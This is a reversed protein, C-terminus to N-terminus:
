DKPIGAAFWNGTDANRILLVPTDCPDPPVPSLVDDIRFDGNPEPMVAGSDHAVNGCFLTALIPDASTTGINGGARILGKGHVKIAGNTEVRAELMQIVWPQGAPPVGLVINATFVTNGRVPIVGIGGKFRVLTDAGVAPLAFLGVTLLVPLFVSSAKKELQCGGIDLLRVSRAKLMDKTFPFAVMYKM